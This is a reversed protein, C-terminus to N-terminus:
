APRAVVSSRTGFMPMVVHLCFGPKEFFGPKQNRSTSHQSVRNGPLVQKQTIQDPHGLDLCLWAGPVFSM